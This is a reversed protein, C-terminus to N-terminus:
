YHKMKHKQEIRKIALKRSKFGHFSQDGVTGSWSGHWNWIEGADEGDIRVTYRNPSTKLLETKL